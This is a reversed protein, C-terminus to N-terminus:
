TKVGAHCPHQRRGEPRGQLQEFAWAWTCVYNRACQCLTIYSIMGIWSWLQILCRLISVQAWPAEPSSSLYGPIHWHHHRALSRHLLLHQAQHKCTWRCLKSFGWPSSGASCGAELARCRCGFGQTPEWSRAPAVTLGLAWSKTTISTSPKAMM